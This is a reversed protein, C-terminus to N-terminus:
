GNWTVVVLETIEGRDYMRIIEYVKGNYRLREENQFEQSRIEFMLEPRLGVSAAQYIESQRVSKKNVYVQRYEWTKVPEYNVVTEALQGLEAVDRWMM